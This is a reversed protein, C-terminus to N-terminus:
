FGKEHVPVHAHRLLHAAAGSPLAPMHAPLLGRKQSSNDVDGQVCYAGDLLLNSCDNDLQLNWKQFQAM